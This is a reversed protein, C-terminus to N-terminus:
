GCTEQNQGADEIRGSFTEMKELKENIDRIDDKHKNKCKNM